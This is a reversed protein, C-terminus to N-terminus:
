ECAQEANGTQHVESVILQGLDNGLKGPHELGPAFSENRDRGAAAIDIAAAEILIATNEVDHWGFVPLLQEGGGTEGSGRCARCFGVTEAAGADGPLGEFQMKGGSGSLVAEQAQRSLRAFNSM